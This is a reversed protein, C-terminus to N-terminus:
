GYYASSGCTQIEYFEGKDFCYKDLKYLDAPTPEKGEDISLLIKNYTKEFDDLTKKMASSYYKKFQTQAARLSRSASQEQARQIREIWYKM